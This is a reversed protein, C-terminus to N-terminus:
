TRACPPWGRRGQGDDKIGVVVQTDPRIPDVDLRLSEGFGGRELHGSHRYRRWLSTPTRHSCWSRFGAGASAEWTSHQQWTRTYWVVPTASTWMPEFAARVIDRLDEGAAVVFSQKSGLGNLSTGFLLLDKDDILYRDHLVGKSAVCVEIPLTSHETRFAKLDRNFTTPRTINVTLLRLESAGSCEALFDLTRGDVYPDCVRVLGKRSSLLGEVDRIRSLASTPEIFIVAASESGVLDIGPKMIQYSRRGAVKRRVVVRRPSGIL